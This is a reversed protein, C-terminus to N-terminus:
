KTETLRVELPLLYYTIHLEEFCKKLALVLESRRKQKEGWEQFNMTHNFYLAMKLKNVNEIELVVVQHNPHWLTPNEDV